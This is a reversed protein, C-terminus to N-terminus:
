RTKAHLVFFHHWPSDPSIYDKQITYYRRIISRILCLSTEKKGVEWYHQGKFRHSVPYPLKLFLDKQSAFPLKIRFHAVPGPHPLSLILSAGIKSLNALVNTFKAFPLHELVQACLVVDYTQKLNLPNSIDACIDPHLSKDFDLTTVQIGYQKLIGAVLGNGMGIELVTKPKLLVTENIQNWYSVWREFDNYSSNFYHTNKVQKM